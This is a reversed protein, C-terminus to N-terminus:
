CLSNSAGLLSLLEEESGYVACGGLFAFAQLEAVDIVLGDSKGDDM